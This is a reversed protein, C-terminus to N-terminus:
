LIFQCAAIFFFERERERKEGGEAGGEKEREKKYPIIKM